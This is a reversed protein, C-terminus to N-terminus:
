VAGEDPLSNDLSSEVLEIWDLRLFGFREVAARAAEDPSAEAVILDATRDWLDRAVIWYTSM